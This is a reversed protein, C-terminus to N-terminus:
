TARGVAALHPDTHSNDRFSIDVGQSRLSGVITDLEAANNIRASGMSGILQDGGSNM